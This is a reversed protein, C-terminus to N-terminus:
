DDTKRQEAAFAAALMDSAEQGSMPERDAEDPMEVPDAALAELNQVLEVALDSGALELELTVFPLNADIGVKLGTVRHVREGNYYVESLHAPKDAPKRIFWGKEPIEM